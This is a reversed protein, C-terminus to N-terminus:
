KPPGFISSFAADARRNADRILQDEMHAGAVCHAMDCGVSIRGRPDRGHYIRFAIQRASLRQQRFNLRPHGTTDTHGIWRYHGDGVAESNSRYADEVSVYTDPRGRRPAPIGLAERTRQVTAPAVGLQRAIHMQPINKRLMAEIDRRVAQRSSTRAAKHAEPEAKRERKCAACYPRGDGQLRGHRSQDHGYPCTGPRDGLGNAQRLEQRKAQRGPEDQVHDPAICHKRGCDAIAYGDPDRRHKIRFAIAAATHAQDKYRMVPTGSTSQREGTWEVHGGDTPRAFLKWKDEITRTQEVPVYNPLGLEERIRRVRHKDVRLERVIRSNSHGDRLMAIIDARTANPPTPM